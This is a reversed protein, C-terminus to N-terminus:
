GPAAQGIGPAGGPGPRCQANRDLPGAAHCGGSDSIGLLFWGDPASFVTGGSQLCLRCQDGPRCSIMMGPQRQQLEGRAMGLFVIGGYFFIATSFIAPIWERLPLQPPSFGLLNQLAPAYLLVPISLLLSFWFRNRMLTAHGVHMGGSHQHSDHSIHAHNGSHNMSQDAHHEHSHEMVVSRGYVGIPIYM